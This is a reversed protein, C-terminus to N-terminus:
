LSWIRPISFDVGMQYLVNTLRQRGKGKLVTLWTVNPTKDDLTFGWLVDTTAAKGVKSGVLRNPRMQFKGEDEFTAQSATLVVCNHKHAIRRLEQMIRQLSEWSQLAINGVFADVYDVIVVDPSYQEVLLDLDTLKPAKTMGDVLWVKSFIDDTTLKYHELIRDYQRKIDGINDELIVHLVHYGQIYFRSGLISLIATKGHSFRAMITGLEGRRFGGQLITDFLRIRTPLFDAGLGISLPEAYDYVILGPDPKKFMTEYSRLASKYFSHIKEESEQGARIAEDM